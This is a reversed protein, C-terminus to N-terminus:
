LSSSLIFYWAHTPIAIADMPKATEGGDTACCHGSLGTRIKTGNGGPPPVSMWARRSDAANRFLVPCVKMMSLRVPAAPRIAAWATTSEGGSPLVIRNVDPLMETTTVSKALRM